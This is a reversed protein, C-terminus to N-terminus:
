TDAQLSESVASENPTQLHVDRQPFAIVINAERFRRDIEQHLQSRVRLRYDTDIIWVRLEFDLSSEGFKLFLVVPEPTKAVKENAQACETLIEFVLPVDSGYAVGVPIILRVQRSSLTWNTVQNTTLDANPIILDAQDFTRVTTARLGINKVEAWVGAVEVIDGQRVPQEFLLILGSVFNNVVGQLGFGIGVGLASILITFKTLDFGIISIVLLFGICIVAYHILREISLRVGRQVKRKRLLVDLFLKQFLWSIFFSGYLMAIVVIVLGVSIRQSGINWGFELCGTTASPLSDFVGWSMLISPVLILGWVAIWIFNMIRQVILDIDNSFLVVAKPLLSSHFLWEVAGHIIRLFLMFILVIAISRAVSVLLYFAMADKGWIEAALIFGLFVAGLRLLRPYLNPAEQHEKEQAWKWCGILGGAAALAIFLRFLPLPLDIIEMFRVTVLFIALGYIFGRELTRTVMSGALRAFSIGLIMLNVFKWIFPFEEYEYIVMTSTCILFLGASYIRDAIFRWHESERLVQRKHYLPIILLIFALLEVLIIWVLGDLFASGSWLLGILSELSAQWLDSTFQSYYRPSFMPPSSYFFTGFRKAIILSELEADFAYLQEQIDGVKEQETLIAGLQPRILNLASTITENVETVVSHVQSPVESELWASQWQDWQHQETLWQQRRTGLRRIEKKLPKSIDNLQESEKEVGQRLVILKTTRYDGSEKLGQLERALTKIGTQIQIYKREFLPLDMKNQVNNELAALRGSLEAAMPIIESIDPVTVVDAKVSAVPEALSAEQAAPTNSALLLMFLLMFSFTKKVSMRM